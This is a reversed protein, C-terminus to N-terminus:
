SSLFLARSHLQKAAGVKLIKDENDPSQAEEYAARLISPLVRVFASAFADSTDSPARARASHHLVDHILYVVNLRGDFDRVASIRFTFLLLSYCCSRHLCDCSAM